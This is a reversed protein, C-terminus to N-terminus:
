NSQLLTRKLKGVFSVLSEAGKTEAPISNYVNISKCLYSTHYSKCKAMPLNLDEKQKTNYCHQKRLTKQQSDTELLMSINKPLLNHKQKYAVKCNEIKLLEKITLFGDLKMNNLTSSKHQILTYCKDLCKQIKSLTTNDVMNGWLLLGSRINSLIHAHYILKKAHNNLYKNSVKLM